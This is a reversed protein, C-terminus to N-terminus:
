FINLFKVIVSKGPMAGPNNAREGPTGTIQSPEVGDVGAKGRGYAKRACIRRMEIIGVCGSGINVSGRGPAITFDIIRRM